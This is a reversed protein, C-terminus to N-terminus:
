ALVEDRTSENELSSDRHEDLWGIMLRAVAVVFTRPDTSAEAAARLGAHLGAGDVTIAWPTGANRKSREVLDAFVGDIKSRNSVSKVRRLLTQWQGRSPIQNARRPDSMVSQAYTIAAAKVADTSAVTLSKRRDVSGHTFTSSSEFLNIEFRGYGEDTREGVGTCGHKALADQLAPLSEGKFRFVSGRKIAIQSRRRKQISGIFGSVNTTECVSDTLEIRQATTQDIIGVDVLAQPTLQQYYGLDHGRLIWDSSLYVAISDETGNTVAAPPKAENAFWDLRVPSGGRGMRLWTDNVTIATLLTVIDARVTSDPCYLKALFVQGDVLKEQSFLSSKETAKEEPDASRSDFKRHLRASPIRNSMQIMTEAECLRFHGQSEWVVFRDDRIRKYSTSDGVEAYRSDRIRLTTDTAAWWCIDHSAVATTAKEMQMTLPAPVAAVFIAQGNVIQEGAERNGNDALPCPYGNEFSTQVAVSDIVSRYRTEDTSNLGAADILRHMAYLLSGRVTAAGISKTTSMLNESNAGDVLLLPELLRLSLLIPPDSDKQASNSSASIPLSVSAASPQMGTIQIRGQFRKKGSGIATIRRILKCLLDCEGQTGNFRISAEAVSGARVLESTRLTMAQAARSHVPRSTQTALMTPPSGDPHSFRWSRTIIRGGVDAGERGLLAAITADFAAIQGPEQEQLVTRYRDGSDRILSKVAQWWLVPKGDRDRALSSDIRACVGLGSGLSAESVLSVKFRIDHRKVVASPKLDSM